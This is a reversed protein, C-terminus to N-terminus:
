KIIESKGNILSIKYQDEYLLLSYISYENNPDDKLIYKFQIKCFSDRLSETINDKINFYLIIYKKFLDYNIFTSERQNNNTLYKLLENYAIIPQTSCNFPTLPVHRNDNIVIYANIIDLENTNFEFADHNQDSRNNTDSFWIFLERPKQATEYLIVDRERNKLTTLTFINERYFKITEQKSLFQTYLLKNAASLTLKEYCLYINKITVKGAAVAPDKYLLINDSEIDVSIEIKSPPLLVNQLSAFFEMAKLPLITQIGSRTLTMRKHYSSNYTSNESLLPYPSTTSKTYKEINIGDVLDPYIFSKQGVTNICENSMEMLNKVVMGYNIDNVYYIQRSDSEFKFANILSASDSALAIKSGAAYTTNNTKKIELDFYLFSNFWDIPLYDQHGAIRFIYKKNQISDLTQIILDCKELNDRFNFNM